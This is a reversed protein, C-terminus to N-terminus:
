YFAVVLRTTALLAALKQALHLVYGVQRALRQNPRPVRIQLALAAGLLPAARLAGLDVIRQADNGLTGVVDGMEHPERLVQGGVLFQLGGRFQERLQPLDAGGGHPADELTQRLILRAQGTLPGGAGTGVEPLDGHPADGPILRHGPVKLGVQHMM